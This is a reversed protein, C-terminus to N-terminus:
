GQWVNEFFTIIFGFILSYPELLCLMVEPRFPKAKIPQAHM